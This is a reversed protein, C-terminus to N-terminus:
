DCPVLHATHTRSFTLTHIVYWSLSVLILVVNLSSVGAFPRANFFRIDAFYANDYAYIIPVIILCASIFDLCTNIFRRSSM